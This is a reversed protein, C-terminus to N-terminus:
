NACKNHLSVQAKAEAEDLLMYHKGGDAAHAQKYNEVRKETRVAENSWLLAVAAAEDASQLAQAVTDARNALHPPASPPRM